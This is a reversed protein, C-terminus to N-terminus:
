QVEAARQATSRRNPMNYRGNGNASRYYKRRAEGNDSAYSNSNDNSAIAKGSFRQWTVTVRTGVAVKPYLEHVDENLMRICGHSVAQGITWPADTGHLRYASSGLYMAHTGLPNMPHGGPVWPPLRPNEIMMEPTPTWSPNVKKASVTTVGAWKSQERPVAIPYSLARGPAILFYVRRDGFSVIMEGPKAKDEFNVLERGSDNVTENSGWDFFISQASAPGAAIMTAAMIGACASLIRFSKTLSM